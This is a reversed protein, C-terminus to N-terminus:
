ESLLEMDLDGDDDDTEGDGHDPTMGLALGDMDRALKGPPSTELVVQVDQDGDSWEADEGMEDGFRDQRRRDALWREIKEETRNVALLLAKTSLCATQAAEEHFVKIFNGSKSDAAAVAHELDDIKPYRPYLAGPRLIDLGREIEEDDSVARRPYLLSQVQKIRTTLLTDEAAILKQQQERTKTREPVDHLPFMDLIEKDIGSEQGSHTQQSAPNNKMWTSQYWDMYQDLQQETMDLIDDDTVHIESGTRLGGAPTLGAEFARDYKSKAELWDAWSMQLTTPHNPDKPYRKVTDSDFPFLLKTAVVVLAVLQSEPYTTSHRITTSQPKTTDPYTFDYKAIAKLRRTMTYVELPLALKRVYNLLFLNQNIPPTIMGFSTNFWTVHHYVAKQLDDPGPLRATTDLSLHYEGPLRDKM